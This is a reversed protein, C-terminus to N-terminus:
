QKQLLRTICDESQDRTKDRLCIIMASIASLDDSIEREWDAAKELSQSEQSIKSKDKKCSKNARILLRLVIILLTVWSEPTPFVGLENQCAAPFIKRGANKVADM